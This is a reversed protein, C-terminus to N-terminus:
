IKTSQWREALSPLNVMNSFQAFKRSCNRTTYQYSLAAKKELTTPKKEFLLRDIKPLETRYENITDQLRGQSYKEFVAKFDQTTLVRRDFKRANTAAESCLKILDRPRKRILSLLVRYMPANEWHGQGDFGLEMIEDLIQAMPWQQMGSLQSENLQRNFFLGVRKVLIKFIEHNTWSYWIVSGEIKDTSEDSTQILFYVDARLAVRFYLGKFDSSMDRLANLLASIRRIDIPRGEWGRDLDDIYVFIRQMSVFKSLTAKVVPDLPVKLKEKFYVLLSNQLVGGTRALLRSVSADHADGVFSIIKNSILDILGTKWNRILVNLDTTDDFQFDQLDDPRM